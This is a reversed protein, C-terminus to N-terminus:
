GMNRILYYRTYMRLVIFVGAIALHLQVVGNLILGFDDPKHM